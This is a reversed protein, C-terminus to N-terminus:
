LSEKEVVSGEMREKNRGEEGEKEEDKEVVSGKM